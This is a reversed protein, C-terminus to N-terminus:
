DDGELSCIKKINLNDGIFVKKEKSLELVALFVAIMDSRTECSYILDLFSLDDKNNFLLKIYNIKSSVSVIKRTVIGSFIEVPLPLRRMRNGSAQLYAKYLESIDHLKKYKMDYEFKQQERVLLNFGETKKALKNAILKCDRYELLEGTLEQKLKESEEHVPLLTLTKIHVLRAAMELFESAIDMDEEQMKRVYAVYQEVLEFIPIDYINLKHKTILHMLLDLPGEFVNLKFHIKEM